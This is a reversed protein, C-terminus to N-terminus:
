KRNLGEKNKYLDFEKKHEQLKRKIIEGWKLQFAENFASLVILFLGKFMYLTIEPKFVATDLYKEPNEVPECNKDDVYDQGFFINHHEINSFPKYVLYYYALIIDGAKEARQRIQSPVKVYKKEKKLEEKIKAQNEELEALRSKHNGYGWEEFREINCKLLDIQAKNGKLFYIMAVDERKKADLMMYSMDVTMNYLSRLLLASDILRGAKILVVFSEFMEWARRFYFSMLKRSDTCKKEKKLQCRQLMEKALNILENHADYLENIRSKKEKM